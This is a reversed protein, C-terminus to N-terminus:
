AVRNYSNVDPPYFRFVNVHRCTDYENMRKLLLLETVMFTEHFTRRSYEPMAKDYVNPPLKAAISLHPRNTLRLSPCNNARIYNDIAKLRFALEQFPAPNQVRLYITHDPFGSYNNLVVPFSPHMCCIRQMWKIITSEMGEQALFGGVTIYPKLQIASKHHYRDYFDQKEAALRNCVQADPRIVLLYEWLGERLAPNSVLGMEM